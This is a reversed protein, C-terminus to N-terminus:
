SVASSSVAGVAKELIDLGQELQEDTVVLPVLFRIVNGSEGAKMIILGAKLCLEMIRLTEEPAPEKTSRDKVIEIAVMAGRGRVDGILAYKGKMAELRQIMVKGVEASRAIFEEREIMEMVQLAAACAVPNGGYTGGLGGTHVSDMIDARGVVVSLPMGAAVSKATVLIDPVVGAHEVAFLKGTRAWGSQVEDAIMLIGHKDCFARVFRLYEDPCIIFGGEGQVPEVIIAAVKDPSIEHEVLRAMQKACGMSCGPYAEGTPCRYCYPSPARYIEPALPGFGYKYPKAKSTLTMTLLTRGHFSNQLAVVAPRGTAKRAIKVGNEVAEAGTSLLLAKKPHDGPVLKCMKEAVRIYNEYQIVQFCTHLFQESQEKIAKVVAPPCSGANLVGIGGAFDIFENDDVDVVVAGSARKAFLKTVSSVGATVYKERLALLQVSKPGPVEGKVGAWPKVRV